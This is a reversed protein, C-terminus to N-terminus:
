KLPENPYDILIMGNKLYTVPFVIGGINEFTTKDPNEFDYNKIAERIMNLTTRGNEMIKEAEEQNYFRIINGM